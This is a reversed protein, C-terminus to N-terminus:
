KMYLSMLYIVAHGIFPILYLPFVRYMRRFATPVHVGWALQDLSAIVETDNNLETLLKKYFEKFETLEYGFARVFFINEDGTVTDMVTKDKLDVYIYFGANGVQYEEVVKTIDSVPLQCVEYAENGAIQRIALMGDTLKIYCDSIDMLMRDKTKYSRYGRIVNVVSLLIIWAATIPYNGSTLILVAIMAVILFVNMLVFRKDEAQEDMLLYMDEKRAILEM